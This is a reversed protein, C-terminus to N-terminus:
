PEERVVETEVLDGIVNYRHLVRFVADGRRRLDNRCSKCAVEIMNAGDVIVPRGIRLLLTGYHEPCRLDVIM